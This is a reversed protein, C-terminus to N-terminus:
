PKVTATSDVDIAATKGVRLIFTSTDKLGWKVYPEIFPTTVHLANNARPVVHIHFLIAIM